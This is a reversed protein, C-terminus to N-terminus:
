LEKKSYGLQWKLQKEMLKLRGGAVTEQM